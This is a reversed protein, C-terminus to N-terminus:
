KTMEAQDSLCEECLRNEANNMEAGCNPCNEKKEKCDDCIKDEDANPLWDMQKGCIKCYLLLTDM